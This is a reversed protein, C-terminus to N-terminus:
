GNLPAGEDGEILEVLLECFWRYNAMWAATGPDGRMARSLGGLLIANIEDVRAVIEEDSAERVGLEAKHEIYARACRTRMKAFMPHNPPPIDTLEM